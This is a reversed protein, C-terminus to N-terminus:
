WLPPIQVLWSHKRNQTNGEAQKVDSFMKCLFCLYPRRSCQRLHFKKLIILLEARLTGWLLYCVLGSYERVHPFGLTQDLKDTLSQWILLFFQCLKLIDWNKLCMKMLSYLIWSATWLATSIPHINKIKKGKLWTKMWDICCIPTPIADKCLCPLGM